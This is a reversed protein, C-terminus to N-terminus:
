KDPEITNIWEKWVPLGNKKWHESSGCSTNQGHLTAGMFLAGTTLFKKLKPHDFIAVYYVSDSTTEKLEIFFYEAARSNKKFGQRFIKLGPPLSASLDKKPLEKFACEMEMTGLGGFCCQPNQPNKHLIYTYQTASTTWPAEQDGMGGAAMQMHSPITATFLLKDFHIKGYAQDSAQTQVSILLFIFFLQVFLFHKRSRM